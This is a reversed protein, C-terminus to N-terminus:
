HNKILGNTLINRKHVPRYFIRKYFSYFSEINFCYTTIWPLHGVLVFQAKLKFLQIILDLIFNNSVQPPPIRWINIDYEINLMAASKHMMMM